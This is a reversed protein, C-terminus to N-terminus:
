PEPPNVVSLFVTVVAPDFHRGSQAKIMELAVAKPRARQYPRDSTLADWVDVVAFIRAELPIQESRLGRPYGTGDWKEHHCYPIALAPRLYGIPALLKYAYVPHRRMLAWEEDNLPGPKHLIYDPIGMKGIDHLLAGRRIHVLEEKSFGMNQAIQLTLRCVRQSHGETEHDRLDLARSWGAITTDYARLLAENSDQLRGLLRRLAQALGAVEDHGPIAPLSAGVESTPLRDAAAAITRLPRTTRQLVLMTLVTLPLAVGLLVVALQRVLLDARAFAVATPQRALVIWGLAPEDAVPTQPQGSTLYTQGDPWVQTAARSGTVQLLQELPLPTDFLQSPGIVLEGDARAVIVEIEREPDVAALVSAHTQRAWAVSLHAGLVGRLSGDPSRLPVAVDVFRLPEGDPSPILEALLKAEHVDGLFLGSRGGQFWPRASVDVGVLLGGSSAQVIGATDTVGIWAYAPYSRQMQDLLARIEDHPTTPDRLLELTSLNQLERSREFLDRALIQSLHLSLAALDAGSDTEIERRVLSNVLLGQLLVVVVTGLLLLLGLRAALNSAPLRVLTLLRGSLM